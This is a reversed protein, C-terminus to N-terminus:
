GIYGANCSPCSYSYIINSVLDKPIPDKYRFLHSIRSHTKFTLNIKGWPVSKQFVNKGSLTGLYPLVIFYEKKPVTDRIPKECFMKDLIKKICTDILYSPYGNMLFIQKFEIVELHFLAYSSCISFYRFLLTSLLGFKYVSPLFSLYHTYVGTFPYVSPLFSLYHTYVGTFPYVSPLFSLYHTYVGTFPYVSPLFSLYHTYVGTFPYVSPLFSLYHTYVGTFPYVSPLFSLYHTYVGTFPYVSPLFSLYHTYVGTFTTKRYM